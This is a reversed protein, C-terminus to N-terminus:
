GDNRQDVGIRRAVARVLREDRIFRQRTLFDEISPHPGRGLERVGGRDLLQTLSRQDVVDLLGPLDWHGDQSAVIARLIRLFDLCARASVGAAKCWMRLAGRSVGVHDGWAQLTRLDGASTTALVIATAVREASHSVANVRLASERGRRRTALTASTTPIRGPQPIAAFDHPHPPTEWHNLGVVVDQSRRGDEFLTTRVLTSIPRLTLPGDAPTHRMRQVRRSAVM